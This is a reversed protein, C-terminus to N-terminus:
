GGIASQVVVQSDSILLDQAVWHRIDYQKGMDLNGIQVQVAIAKQGRTVGMVTIDRVDCQFQDEIESLLQAAVWQNARQEAQVQMDQQLRDVNPLPTTNSDDTGNELERTVIDAVSNAWDKRFFPLVPQLMVAIIALGMVARVYKQMSKTPLLLDTLVALVVMLIIQKLWEGLVNM